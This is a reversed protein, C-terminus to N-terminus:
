SRKERRRPPPVQSVPQQGIGSGLAVGDPLDLPQAGM